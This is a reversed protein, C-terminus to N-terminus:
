EGQELRRRLETFYRLVQDRRSVPLPEESLAEEQVTIFDIALEQRSRAAEEGHSQGEIERLQAPGEGAPPVSVTKTTSPKHPSTPSPSYPASGHGAYLGGVGAGQGQQGAGPVPTTGAGAGAGSGSGSGPCQSGGPCQGSGCGPCTGPM